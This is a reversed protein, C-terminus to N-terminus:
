QWLGALPRLRLHAHLKLFESICTVASVRDSDGPRKPDETPKGKQYAGEKRDKSKDKRYIGVFNLSSSFM